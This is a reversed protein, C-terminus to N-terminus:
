IQFLRNFIVRTFIGLAARNSQGKALCETNYRITVPREVCKLRADAIIHLLESAHAMRDETIRIRRAAAVSFARLGNHTDTLPLGTTLRTFLVAAQLLLRRHWPIGPSRGLFRSGLVVDADGSVIPAIMEIIDAPDHQGDADFTLIIDASQRVAFDIGTQLAAGQGRNIVHRLVVAGADRAVQSTADVSGDDVVVVQFRKGVLQRVVADIRQGENLAAIVVWTTPCTSSTASTAPSKM